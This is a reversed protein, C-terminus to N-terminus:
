ATVQEDEYNTRDQAAECHVEATTPRARALPVVAAICGARDDRRLQEAAGQLIAQCLGRPYVAADRARTGGLLPAHEHDGPCKKSLAELIAPSSSMFRTPKRAAARGKGDATTSWSEAIEPEIVSYDYSLGGDPTTKTGFSVLRDYVNVAVQCSPRNTGTRHIDLSNITQGIVAVIVDGTAAGAPMAKLFPLMAAGMAVGSTKLFDRRTPATM